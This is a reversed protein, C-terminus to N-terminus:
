TLVKDVSICFWESTERFFREIDDRVVRGILRGKKSVLLQDQGSSQMLEMAQLLTAKSEIMVQEDMAFDVDSESQQIILEKVSHSTM